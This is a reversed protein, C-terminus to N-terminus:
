FPLDNNKNNSDIESESTEKKVEPKWDDKIIYYNNDKSELLKMNVWEDGLSQLYNILDNRKISLGAIVWKPAKEHPKKAYLGKILDSM